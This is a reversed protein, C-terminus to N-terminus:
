HPEMHGHPLATLQQQGSIIGIQRGLFKTLGEPYCNTEEAM